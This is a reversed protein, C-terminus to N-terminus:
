RSCCCCRGSARLPALEPTSREAGEREGVELTPSWDFVTRVGWVERLLGPIKGLLFPLLSFFAGGIVAGARSRLGGVVTMIVFVLALQFNWM